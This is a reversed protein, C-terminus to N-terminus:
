GSYVLQMGRETPDLKVHVARPSASVVEAETVNETELNVHLAKM